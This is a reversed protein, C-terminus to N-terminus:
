ASAGEKMLHPGLIRIAEAMLKPDLDLNAQEVADTYGTLLALALSLLAQPYREAFPLIVRLGEAFAAAAEPPRELAALV